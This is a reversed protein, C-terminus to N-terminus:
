DNEKLKSLVEELKSILGEKGSKTEVSMTKENFTKIELKDIFGLKGIGNMAEVLTSIHYAYVAGLLSKIKKCSNEDVPENEDLMPLWSTESLTLNTGNVHVFKGGFDNDLTYHDGGYGGTMKLGCERLTGHLRMEDVAEKRYDPNYTDAPFYLTKNYEEVAKLFDDVSKYKEGNFVIKDHDTSFVAVFASTRKDYMCYSKPVTISKLRLYGLANLQEDLKTKRM